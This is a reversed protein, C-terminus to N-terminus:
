HNEEPLMWQDGLWQDFEPDGAPTNLRGGLPYISMEGL